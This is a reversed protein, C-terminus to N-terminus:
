KGGVIVRIFWCDYGLDKEGVAAAAVVVVM